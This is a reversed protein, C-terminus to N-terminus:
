SLKQMDTPLEPAGDDDRHILSDVRLFDGGAAESTADTSEGKGFSWGLPLMWRIGLVSVMVMESNLGKADFGRLVLSLRM